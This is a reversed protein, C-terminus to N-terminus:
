SLIGSKGQTSLVFLTAMAEHHFTGYWGLDYAVVHGFLIGFPMALENAEVLSSDEVLVRQESALQM